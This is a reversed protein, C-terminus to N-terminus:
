RQSLGTLEELWFGLIAVPLGSAVAPVRGEQSSRGNVTDASPECARQVAVKDGKLVHFRREQAITM